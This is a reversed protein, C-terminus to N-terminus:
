SIWVFERISIKCLKWFTELFESGKSRPHLNTISVLRSPISIRHSRSNQKLIARLHNTRPYSSPYNIPYNRTSKVVIQQFTGNKCNFKSNLQCHAFNKNWFHVSQVISFLIKWEFRAIVRVCWIFNKDDIKRETKNGELIRIM